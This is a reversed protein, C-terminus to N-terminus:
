FEAREAVPQRQVDPTAAKALVSSAAGAPVAARALTADRSQKEFLGLVGGLVSTSVLVAALLAPLRAAMSKRTYIPLSAANREQTM